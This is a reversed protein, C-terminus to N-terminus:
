HIKPLDSFFRKRRAYYWLVISKSYVGPISTFKRKNKIHIRKAFTKPSHLYFHFHAKLIAMFFGKNGSFLEKLAAQGDILM